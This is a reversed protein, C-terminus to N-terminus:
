VLRLAGDLWEENTCLHPNFEASEAIFFFGLSINDFQMEGKRVINKVWDNPMSRTIPAMSDRPQLQHLLICWFSAYGSTFQM